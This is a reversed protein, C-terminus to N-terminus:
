FRSRWSPQSSFIWPTSNEGTRKSRKYRLDYDRDQPNRCFAPQRPNTGAVSTSAVPIIYALSWHCASAIIRVAIAITATSLIAARLAAFAVEPFSRWVHHLLGL